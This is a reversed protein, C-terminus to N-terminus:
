FLRVCVCVWFPLVVGVRGNGIAVEGVRDGVLKAAAEAVLALGERERGRQCDSRFDIGGVGKM